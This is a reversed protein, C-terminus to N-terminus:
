YGGSGEGGIGARDEARCGRAEQDQRASSVELLLNGGKALGACVGGGGGGALGEGSNRETCWELAEKTM